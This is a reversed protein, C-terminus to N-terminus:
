KSNLKYTLFSALTISFVGLIIDMITYNWSYGKFIAMNTLDFTGFMLLSCTLSIKLVDEVNKAYPKIIFIYMLPVMLYYLSGAVLNAKLPKKQVSEVM